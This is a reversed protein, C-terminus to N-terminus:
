EKRIRRKWFWDVVEVVETPTYVRTLGHRGARKVMRPHPVPYSMQRAREEWYQYARSHVGLIRQFLEGPYFERTAPDVGSSTIREALWDSSGLGLERALALLNKEM